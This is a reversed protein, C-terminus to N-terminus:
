FDPNATMIFARTVPPLTAYNRTVYSKFLLSFSALLLCIFLALTFLGYAHISSTLEGPRPLTNALILTLTEAFLISLLMQLELQRNSDDNKSYSTLNWTSQQYSPPQFSDRYQTYAPPTTRSTWEFELSSSPSYAPLPLHPIAGARPSSM